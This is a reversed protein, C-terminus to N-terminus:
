FIFGAEKQAKRTKARAYIQKATLKKKKKLKSKSKKRM